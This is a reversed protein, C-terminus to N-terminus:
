VIHIIPRSSVLMCLSEIFPLIAFTKSKAIWSDFDLINHLSFSGLNKESNLHMFVMRLHPSMCFFHALSSWYIVKNMRSFSIAVRELIRAQFIGHVPSGPPSCDTPTEFLQVLSFVCVCVCVRIYELNSCNLNIKSNM